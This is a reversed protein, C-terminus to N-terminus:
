EWGGGLCATGQGARVWLRPGGPGIGLCCTDGRWVTLSSSWPGCAGSWTDSWPQGSGLGRQLEGRSGEGLM